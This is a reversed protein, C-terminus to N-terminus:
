GRGGGCAAGGVLVGKRQGKRDGGVKEDRLFAGASASGPRCLPVNNAAQELEATDACSGADVCHM